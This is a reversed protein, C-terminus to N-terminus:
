RVRIKENVRNAAENMTIAAIKTMEKRRRLFGSFAFRGPKRMVQEELARILGDGQGNLRHQRVTGDNRRQYPKSMAKPPRRRIGALEAYDFGLGRKGGTMRINVLRHSGDRRRGPTFEIVPKNVGRWKTQGRHDMGGGRRPKRLPSQKPIGMAIAGALPNLRTKLDSRLKRISNKEYDRLARTVRRVDEVSARAQVM